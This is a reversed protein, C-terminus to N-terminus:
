RIRNIAKRFLSNRLAILKDRSSAREKRAIDMFLPDSRFRNRDMFLAKPGYVLSFLSVLDKEEIGGLILEPAISTIKMAIQYKLHESEVLIIGTGASVWRGPQDGRRRTFHM